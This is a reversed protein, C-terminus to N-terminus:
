KRSRRSSSRRSKRRSQRKNKKSKQKKAVGKRRRTRKSGSRKRSRSRGGKSGDGEDDSSMVLSGAGGGGAANAKAVAKAVTMSVSSPPIDIVELPSTPPESALKLLEAQDPLAAGASRRRPPALDDQADGAGRSRRLGQAPDDQEANSLLERQREREREERQREGQAPDDQEAASSFKNKFWWIAAGLGWRQKFPLNYHERDEAQRMLEKWNADTTEDGPIIGPMKYDNTEPDLECTDLYARLIAFKTNQAVAKAVAETRGGRMLLDTLDIELRNCCLMMAGQTPLMSLNGVRKPPAGPGEHFAAVGIELTTRHLVSAARRFANCSLEKMYGAMTWDSLMYLEIARLQSKLEKADDAGLVAKTSVNSGGSDPPPVEVFGPNLEIHRLLADLTPSDFFADPFVTIIALIAQSANEVDRGRILHEIMAQRKISREMCFTLAVKAEDMGLDDRCDEYVTALYLGSFLENFTENNAAMLYESSASLAWLSTNDLFAFSQHLKDLSINLMVFEPPSFIGQVLRAGMSTVHRAFTVLAQAVTQPPPPPPPPPPPVAAEAARAARAAAAAAEARHQADQDPAEAARPPLAAAAAAGRAVAAADAEAAAQNSSRNNIHHVLLGHCLLICNDFTAVDAIGTLINFVVPHEGKFVDYRAANPELMFNAFGGLFKLFEGGGLSVLTDYAFKLKIVAAGLSLAGGAAGAMVRVLQNATKFNFGMGRDMALFKDMCARGFAVRKVDNMIITRYAIMVSEFVDDDAEWNPKGLPGGASCIISDAVKKLFDDTQQFRLGPDPGIDAMKAMIANIKAQQPNARPEDGEQM